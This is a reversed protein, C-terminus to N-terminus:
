SALNMDPDAVSSNFLVITHMQKLVSVSIYLFWNCVLTHVLEGQCQDLLRPPVVTGLFKTGVQAPRAM